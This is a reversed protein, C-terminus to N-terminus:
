QLQIPLELVEPRLDFEFSVCTLQASWKRPPMLEQKWTRLNEVPMPDPRPQNWIQLKDRYIQFEPIRTVIKFEELVYCLAAIHKCSVRPGRGAPYGCQAASIKFSSEELQLEIKYVRDKKMEPLCGAWIFISDSTIEHYVEIKQNRGCRLLNLASSYISKFDGAPFGDHAIWAIFYGLLQAHTFRFVLNTISGYVETLEQWGNTPALPIWRETSKIKHDPDLIIEMYYYSLELWNKM